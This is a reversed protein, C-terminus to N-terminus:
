TFCSAIPQGTGLLKLIGLIYGGIEQNQIRFFDHLQYALALIMLFSFLSFPNQITYYLFSLLLFFSGYALFVEIGCLSFISFSLISVLYIGVTIHYQDRSITSM